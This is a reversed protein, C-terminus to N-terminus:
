KPEAYETKGACVLLRKCDTGKRVEFRGGLDTLAGALWCNGTPSLQLCIAVTADWSVVCCGSSKGDKKTLMGAQRMLFKLAKEKEKRRSAIDAQSSPPPVEHPAKFCRAVGDIAASSDKMDLVDSIGRYNEDLLGAEDAGAISDIIRRDVVASVSDDGTGLFKLRWGHPRSGSRTSFILNYVKRKTVWSRWRPNGFTIVWHGQKSEKDYTLGLAFTTQGEFETRAYCSSLEADGIHSVTWGGINASARDESQAFHVGLAAVCLSTAAIWLRAKQLVFTV